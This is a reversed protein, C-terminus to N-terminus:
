DMFCWRRFELDLRRVERPMGAFGRRGQPIRTRLFGSGVGWRQLNGGRDLHELMPRKLLVEAEHHVVAEVVVRVESAVEDVRVEPDDMSDEVDQAIRCVAGAPPTTAVVM